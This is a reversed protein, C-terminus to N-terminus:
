VFDRFSVSHLLTDTDAYRVRYLMAFASERELKFDACGVVFQHLPPVDHNMSRVQDAILASSMVEVDGEISKPFATKEMYIFEKFQSLQESFILAQDMSMKSAERTKPKLRIGQSRVDVEGICSLLFQWYDPIYLAKTRFWERCEQNVFAIRRDLLFLLYDHLNEKTLPCDAFEDDALLSLDKRMLSAEDVIKGWLANVYKNIFRNDGITVVVVQTPLPTSAPTGLVLKTFDKKEVM